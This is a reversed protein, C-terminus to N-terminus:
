LNQDKENLIIAKHFNKRFNFMLILNILFDLYIISLLKFDHNTKPHFKFISFEEKQSLQAYIM